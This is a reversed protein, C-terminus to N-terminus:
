IEIRRLEDISLTLFTCRFMMHNFISGMSRLHRMRLLIIMMMDMVGSDDDRNAHGEKASEEGPEQSRAEAWPDRAGPEPERELGM